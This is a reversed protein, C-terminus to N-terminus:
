KNKMKENREKVLADSNLVPNIYKGNMINEINTQSQEFTIKGMQVQSFTQIMGILPTIDEEFVLRRCIIPYLEYFSEDFEKIKRLMAYKDDNWVDKNNLCLHLINIIKDSIESMNQQNFSM